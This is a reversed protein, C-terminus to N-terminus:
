SVTRASPLPAGSVGFTRPQSVGNQYVAPLLRTYPTMSKGLDPLRLNNCVGSFSRFPSSPDCGSPGPESRGCKQKNPPPPIIDQGRGPLFRGPPGPPSNDGFISNLTNLGFDILNSALQRRIRNSRVRFVIM